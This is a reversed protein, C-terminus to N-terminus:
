SALSAERCSATARPAALFAQSIPEAAAKSSRRSSIRAALARSTAAAGACPSSRRPSRGASARIGPPDLLHRLRQSVDGRQGVRDALDDCRAPPGVPQLDLLHANREADDEHDVLATGVHRDVGGGEADLAAVRHDQAAALLGDVGVPCEVADQGVLQDRAAQGLLRDLKDRRDVAGGDALQQASGSNM